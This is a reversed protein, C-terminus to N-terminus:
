AVRYDRHYEFVNQNLKSIVEKRGRTVRPTSIPASEKACRYVDISNISTEANNVIKMAIFVHMENRYFCANRGMKMAIYVHM